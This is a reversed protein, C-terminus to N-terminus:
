ASELGPERVNGETAEQGEPALALDEGRSATPMTETGRRFLRQMASWVHATMRTFMGPEPVYVRVTELYAHAGDVNMGARGRVNILSSRVVALIEQEIPSDGMDELHRSALRNILGDHTRHTQLDSTEPPRTIEIVERIVEGVTHPRESM